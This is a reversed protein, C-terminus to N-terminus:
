SLIQLEEGMNREKALKYVHAATAIDELAIGLGKYLTINEPADRQPGQHGVVESLEIVRNWDFLGEDAPIIFDGAELHAQDRSDTVILYSRQLTSLDIERRNEWNSGIANVHCGPKLWEGHIVPEPSSTATILIDALEVAQRATAVPKVQIGLLRMMEDCFIKCAQPTRSYVYAIRVHRVACMGLLQTHAQNGAGILGVTTANPRALYKTALGSTAGTRMRGLWDAEIIALLQGDHASYLMVVFRVGNRFATYTKYGLVGLTPVAAALMNLVGNALMIRSRPQNEVCGDAMAGFAQELVAVTDPMTLLHRVDEERLVLAM